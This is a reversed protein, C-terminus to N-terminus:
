FDEGRLCEAIFDGILGVTEALPAHEDIYSLYIADLFAEYGDKKTHTRDHLDSAGICPACIAFLVTVAMLVSLIKMGTKKLRM